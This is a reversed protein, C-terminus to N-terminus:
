KEPNKREQEAQKDNESNVEFSSDATSKRRVQQNHDNLYANLRQRQVSVDPRPLARTQELSVPSLGGQIGTVPITPAANFPQDEVPQNYQQVGLIVAVAVSAAVAFQGTQQFLPSAKGSDDNSAKKGSFSGTFQRALWSGISVTKSSAPSVIETTIPQSQIEPEALSAAVPDPESVTESVSLAPEDELAQMVQASIDFNLVSPSEKKLGDKIIHYRHWKEQLESDNCLTDLFKEDQLDGDIYASLSEINRETM